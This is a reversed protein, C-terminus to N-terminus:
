RTFTYCGSFGGDPNEITVCVAVGKPLMAKLAAGGQALVKGPSKYTTQPAPQGNIKVVAGSAFASGLIKLGFPTPIKSIGGIVPPVVTTFRWVATGVASGCANKPVVKWYYTTNGSLPAPTYSPALVTTVLPPAPVTGFYVDYAEAGAAPSWTLVPRMSVAAAGDGPSPSAVAPPLTCTSFSWTPCDEADGCASRPIVKWYYTTGPATIGPAYGPGSVQAVFPPTPSTGFYIGYSDAGGVANWVLTTNTLVGASGSAPSPASASMPLDCTRFSWTPCNLASCCDSKPVVKWFYTTGPSLAGPVFSVGTVTGAQPPTSSTGFYVDYSVAGSAASWSLVTGTLQGTAGNAPSPQAAAPPPDCTRFSWVPCNQATGCASRPVVKWFYTTASNLTSTVYSPGTVSGVLPPSSSTGFYVDYSEAGTVASWALTPSLLVGVAGEAPAPSAPGAPLDCTRFTWLPCSTAMGCESRPVIKWHYSTSPILGTPTYTTVAVTGIIPPSASTGLYVDYSTAGTVPGWSLTAGTLVGQAGEAPSASAAAAPLDCTRFSWVPCSAASGCLSKPVIKWYYTTGPTLGGPSFGPQTVNGALSPSESTGVYVDYSVAGDVAGWVLLTTTLVGVAGNSPSAAGASPPLDCTRFTWTSPTTASGCSSRPVVKWYYTTSPALSPPLYSTGATNAAFGPNASTGLYVDYSSAGMVASWTLGATTLVGTAGDSPNPTGAPTPLPCVTRFSWITSSPGTACVNRPVIQWYYVTDVDLAPPAYSTITTNGVFSPPSSKGLYLDYSTAGSAPSWSLTPTLSVGTAGPAPSPSSVVGPAGLVQDTRSVSPSLTGLGCANVYKVQYSYSMNAWTNTDSCTTAGYAFTGSCGGSFVPSGNRFVQYSRYEGSGGDKWDAADTEWSLDIGTACPDADVATPVSTVTPSGLVPGTVTYVGGDGQYGDTNSGGWMMMSSGTWVAAHLYRGSPCGTGLQTPRWDNTLPNYRGGQNEGPLPFTDSWGGWVIMEEGTWIGPLYCRGSPCAAGLSTAAWSDSAPDYLGGTQKFQGDPDYPGGIGGWIIMKNGTWVAEHYGRLSPCTVGTSTSTWSDSALHYCGGTNTYGTSTSGGWVIMDTGALVASHAMRATPCAGATSIPTWTDTLPQYRAGSNLYGTSNQGGWIAMESGTWVSSHNIRPSAANAGTSTPLWTDSIPNYRGGNSVYDGDVLSGWVIMETGTWVGSFLSMAAPCNAGTSTPAWSDTAPAYRGGTNANGNTVGGWVILETGTWCAYHYVRPNPITGTPHTPVWSDTQPSYRGGSGIASWSGDFGGWIIIESGTWVESQGYRASPCAGLTSTPTWTNSTPSFRAGTNTYAGGVVAGGWIVMESGTWAASHVVRASPCYGGTPTATWSNTSPNYRGGTDNPLGDILVGGWVIMETGTWVATQDSRAAPCQGAVSTATWSDTLPNYRGGTNMCGSPSAVGGWVIMESGTWVGTSSYRGVPCNAGTSTPTWVDAVPDYRGGTNKFRGDPDGDAGLGGWVIMRTGTWVAALYARASPCGGSTSTPRWTDTTPNYRGGSSFIQGSDANGGWVVMETGTWVAAANARASPCDGGMSTPVWSGTSPLYRGGSSRNGGWVIMETGTWVANHFWRSAPSNHLLVPDWTGLCTASAAEAKGASPLHYEFGPEPTTLPLKKQEDGWWRNFSQKTVVRGEVELSEEDSRVTRYIAFAEGTDVIGSPRGESPMERKLRNLEENSVPIKIPGGKQTKLGGTEPEVETGVVYLVHLGQGEPVSSLLTTGAERLATEAQARTQTHFRADGYYWDRVLRDVLIPRALCEAIREPDNGLTAFLERLMDPDKSERTMRDMEAQLQEGTIPRYWLSDLAASKKLADSVKSRIERAPILQEFPPKPAPNEKPWLRHNYYVREIAEQAKVREEFTLPRQGAVTTTLALSVWAAIGMLRWSRGRM